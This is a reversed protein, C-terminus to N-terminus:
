RAADDRLGFEKMKRQLAVRSIGLARATRSVNADHATLVRKLHEREFRELAPRLALPQDDAAPRPTAETGRVKRSLQAVDIPAGRTLSAARELENELERVNGPWAYGELLALAAPEIPQDKRGLREAIRRLLHEVLLPVDERRERLPPVRIPFTALRYYLDERFRGARAEEALTRNTASIVRLNVRRASVDGVPIFEGEQLVRLLKAQFAPSTEGIEDLFITGQDAVEFLGKKDQLAGTFAGRRHGFLESELLNENLAACNVAVFARRRRPGNYHIARAVLEKGTGTEGEILVNFPTELAAEMLDIVEAMVASQAVIEKFQHSESVTRRLATVERRLLAERATVEAFLTANEIAISVSGSLADLFELDETTFSGDQRNVVQLVGIVARRTRLPTSLIDRTRRGTVEDVAAYFRADSSVDAVLLPEGRALVWGAVGRDKPIALARLRAARAPDADDVYPFRLEKADEDLLLVAASEAHFLDKIRGILYPLLEDLEILAGLRQGIEYLLMARGGDM